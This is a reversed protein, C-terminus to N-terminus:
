WLITDLPLPFIIKSVLIVTEDAVNEVFQQYLVHFPICAFDHTM